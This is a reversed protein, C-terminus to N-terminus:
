LASADSQALHLDGRAIHMAEIVTQLNGSDLVKAAEGWGAPKYGNAAVCGPDFLDLAIKAMIQAGHSWTGDIGRLLREIDIGGHNVYRGGREITNFIHMAASLRPERLRESPVSTNTRDM